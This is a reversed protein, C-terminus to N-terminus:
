SPLLLHDPRPKPSKAAQRGQARLSVCVLQLLGSMLGDEGCQEAAGRPILLILTRERSEDTLTETSSSRGRM